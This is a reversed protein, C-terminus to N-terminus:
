SVTMVGTMFPRLLDRFPYTGPQTPATFTVSVGNSVDGTNFARSDATLTHIVQDENRVTITAGPGVTLNAPHFAFNKITVTIASASTVSAPSAAPSTTTSSIGCASVSLLTVIAVVAALFHCSIWPPAALSDM